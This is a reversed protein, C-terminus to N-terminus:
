HGKWMDSWYRELLRFTTVEALRRDEMALWPVGYRQMWALGTGYVSKPRLKSREPPHQLIRYWPAEIVVAAFDMGAMRQHEREFRDRHQGLTNYLDDLSKREITVLHECGKITYDGTKLHAWEWRVVIPRHCLRSTTRLGDFRYPQKEQGDTLVVFPSVIPENSPQPKTRKV